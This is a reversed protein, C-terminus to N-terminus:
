WGIASPLFPRISINWHPLSSTPNLNRNWHLWQSEVKSFRPLNCALDASKRQCVRPFTLTLYRTIRKVNLTFISWVYLGLDWITTAATDRLNTWNQLWPDVPLSWFKFAHDALYSCRGWVKHKEVTRMPELGTKSNLDPIYNCTKDWKSSISYIKCYDQNKKFGVSVNQCFGRFKLDM